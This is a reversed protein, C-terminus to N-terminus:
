PSRERLLLHSPPHLGTEKSGLYFCWAPERLLPDSGAARPIQPHFAGLGPITLAMGRGRKKKGERRFVMFLEYGNRCSVVPINECELCLYCCPMYYQIHRKM